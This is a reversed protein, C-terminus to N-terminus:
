VERMTTRCIAAFPALVNAHQWLSLWHSEGLNAQHCVQAMQSDKSAAHLHDKDTGGM